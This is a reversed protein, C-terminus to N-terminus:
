NDHKFVTKYLCPVEKDYIIATSKRILIFQNQSISDILQHGVLGNVSLVLSDGNINWRGDTIPQFAGSKSKITLTGDPNYFTEYDRVRPDVGSGEAMVVFDPMTDLKYAQSYTIWYDHSILGFKSTTWDGVKLTKTVTTAKNINTAIIVVTTDNIMNEYVKSGNLAVNTGNLVVKTTKTTIWSVTVSNDHYPYPMSDPSITVELTPAKEEGVKITFSKEAKGGNAGIAKIEFTTDNLLSEINKNGEAPISSGNLTASVFGKINWSFTVPSGYAIPSTPIGTITIVPNVPTLTPDPIPPDKVCGAIFVMALFTIALLIGIKKM